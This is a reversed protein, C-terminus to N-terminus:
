NLHFITDREEKLAASKSLDKQADLKLQFIEQVVQSYPLPHFMVINSSIYERSIKKRMHFFQVFFLFRELPIILTSFFDKLINKKCVDIFTNDFSNPLFSLVWKNENLFRRHMNDKSFIVKLQATEHATYMNQMDKPIMLNDEAMFMNPCIKNKSDFMSRGRKIGFALLLLNTLLRTTWLTNKSTIIFLDIDHDKQANEVSLSGSIGILKVTPIFLLLKSIFFATATKKKNDALKALRSHILKREGKFVVFEGDQDFVNENKDLTNKIKQLSVKKDTHIYKHLESIKLAYSFVQAYCMTETIAQLLTKRNKKM